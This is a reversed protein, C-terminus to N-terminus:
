KKYKLGELSFNVNKLREFKKSINKKLKNPHFYVLFIWFFQYLWYNQPQVWSILSKHPFDEATWQKVFSFMHGHAGQTDEEKCAAVQPSM